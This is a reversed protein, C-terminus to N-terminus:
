INDEWGLCNVGGYNNVSSASNDCAWYINTSELAFEAFGTTSSGSGATGMSSGSFTLLAIPPPNTVSEIGGYSGNPAVALSMTNGNIVGIVKIGCATTPVFSSVSAAVYTGALPDGTAAGAASGVAIRPLATTGLLGVVYQAKRGFQWTGYLTAAGPLTRVSGVRAYFTYVGSAIAALNALFTANATFQLSAVCKTTGDAQAIVWVAYTTDAAVGGTDLCDVAGSSALSVTNAVVVNRAGGSANIVSVADAAVTFATTTTTKIVLNKHSGQPAPAAALTTGSLSLGPGVTIEEVVGAAATARGLLRATASVNQMKAYTVASAALKGTTVQLDGLNATAIPLVAVGAKFLNGTLIDFGTSRFAAIDVGGSSMRSEDPGWFYLGTNPDGVGSYAPAAASGPDPALMPGTVVQNVAADIQAQTAVLAAATWNPLTTKLAAKILRMHDDAQSLGDSAAPNATNLQSIYTAAELPMPRFESPFSPLYLSM